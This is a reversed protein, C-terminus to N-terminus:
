RLCLVITARIASAVFTYYWVILLFLMSAVLQNLMRRIDVQCVEMISLKVLREFNRSLM